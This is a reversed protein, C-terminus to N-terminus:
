SREPGSIDKALEIRVTELSPSKIQFIVLAIRRTLGAVIVIPVYSGTRQLGEEASAAVFMCGVTGQQRAPHPSLQRHHVLM